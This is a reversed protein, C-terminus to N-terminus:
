DELDLFESYTYIMNDAVDSDIKTNDCEFVSLCNGSNNFLLYCDKKEDIGDFVSKSVKIPVQFCTHYNQFYFCPVNKHNINEVQKKSLFDKIIVYGGNNREDEKKLHRIFTYGGLAICFVGLIVSGYYALFLSSSDTQAAFLFFCVSALCLCALISLSTIGSSSSTYKSVTNSNLVVIRDKM